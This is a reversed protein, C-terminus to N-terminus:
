DANHYRSSHNDLTIQYDNTENNFVEPSVQFINNTGKKVILDTM